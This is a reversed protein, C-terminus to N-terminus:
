DISEGSGRFFGRGREDRASGRVPRPIGPGGFRAARQLKGRHRVCSTDPTRSQHPFTMCQLVHETPLTLSLIPVSQPHPRVSALRRCSVSRADWRNIATHAIADILLAGLFGQSMNRLSPNFPAEIAWLRHENSPVM